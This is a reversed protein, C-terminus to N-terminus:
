LTRGRGDGGIHDEMLSRVGRRGEYNLEYRPRAGPGDHEGEMIWVYDRELFSARGIAPDRTTFIIQPGNPNTGPDCFMGVDGVARGPYPTRVPTREPM